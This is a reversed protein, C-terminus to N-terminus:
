RSNFENTLRHSGPNFLTPYQSEPCLKLHDDRPTAAWPFVPTYPMCGSAFASATSTHEALRQPNGAHLPSDHGCKERLTKCNSRVKQLKENKLM